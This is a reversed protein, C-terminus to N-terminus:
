CELQEIEPQFPRFGLRPHFRRHSAAGVVWASSLRCSVERPARVQAPTHSSVAYVLPQTAVALRIMKTRSNRRGM